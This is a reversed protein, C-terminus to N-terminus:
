GNHRAIWEEVVPAVKTRWKSGNFIGYHGAGKAMYYKKHSEPLGTSIKLAAKTQGLGSIDDREGEVALLAVDSLAAPDVRRGRHMLEGKPLSHKQFVESVTQIYFEATMDCVSRYEEYFKKTADASDEDGDVLHKFMEWHSTLHDGLNMTMFGALQMFGPYVRRGNGPYNFPVTAVVNQEFWGLPRETAMINVATPAERTDIPGGMMTLTRPRAPNKDAAMLCAAAYCPVSPQCVALMHAGPGIHELWEILYDIYDDLDFRGDSLPVNRADRWDTIWIDHGPLLREVTGRLLTAFHGSMPAVILLRPDSPHAGERTFHRLQGFPKRAEIVETVAVTQGDIQTTPLNFDPKGRPAAAHAFVDLASALIPGGGFYSFPNAPNNLLEAGANALASAGALLNRQFEYASYLM